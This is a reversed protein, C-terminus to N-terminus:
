PGDLPIYLEAVIQWGDVHRRWRALYAGGVTREKWRGHWQGSEAATSGAVTVSQPTRHYTLFDPDAFSKEFARQMASMGDILAGDSGVIKADQSLFAAARDAKRAAIATNSAHRLARIAAEDNSLDQRDM